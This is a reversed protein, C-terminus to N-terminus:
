PYTSLLLFPSLFALLLLLLPLLVANNYADLMILVIGAVGGLWYFAIIWIPAIWLPFILTAKLWALPNPFWIPWWSLVNKM